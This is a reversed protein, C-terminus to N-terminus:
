QPQFLCRSIVSDLEGSLPNDALGLQKPGNLSLTQIHDLLSWLM